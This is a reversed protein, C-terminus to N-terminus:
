LSTNIRREMHSLTLRAFIIVSVTSQTINDGLGKFHFVELFPMLLFLFNLFNIFLCLSESVESLIIVNEIILNNNSNFIPLYKLSEASSNGYVMQFMERLSKKVDFKKKIKRYCLNYVDDLCCEGRHLFIRM